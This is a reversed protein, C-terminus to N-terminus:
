HQSLWEMGEITRSHPPKGIHCCFASSNMIVAPSPVLARRPVLGWFRCGDPSKRRGPWILTPIYLNGPCIWFLSCECMGQPLLLRKWIQNVRWECKGINCKKKCCRLSRLSDFLSQLKLAPFSMPSHRTWCWMTFLLCELCLSTLHSGWPCM